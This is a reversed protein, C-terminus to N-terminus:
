IMGFLPGLIVLIDLDAYLVPEFARWSKGLFSNAYGAFDSNLVEIDM